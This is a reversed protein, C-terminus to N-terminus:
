QHGTGKDKELIAGSNGNRAPKTIKEAIISNTEAISKTSADLTGENIAKAIAEALGRYKESDKEDQEARIKKAAEQYAKTLSAEDIKTLGPRDTLQETYRATAQDMGIGQGRATVGIKVRNMQANFQETAKAKAQPTWENPGLRNEESQMWDDRKKKVYDKEGLATGGAKGLMSMALKNVRQETATQARFQSEQNINLEERRAAVAKKENETLERGLSKNQDVILRAVLKYSADGGAKMTETQRADLQAVPAGKNEAGWAGQYGPIGGALANGGMMAGTMAPVGYEVVSSQIFQQLHQLSTTMKLAEQTFASGVSGIEEGVANAQEPTLIKGSIQNSMAIMSDTLSQRAGTEKEMADIIADNRLRTTEIPSFLNQFAKGINDGALVLPALLDATEEAAAGLRDQFKTSIGAIEKGSGANRMEAAMDAAAKGMPTALLKRAEDGAPVVGALSAKFVEQAAPGGLEGIRSMAADMAQIEDASKGRMAARYQADAARSKQEQALSERSKGTLKSLQDLNSIYDATVEAQSQDDMRKMQAALASNGMMDGILGASEDATIGMSELSEKFSRGSDHYFRDTSQLTSQLTMMADAGASSMGGFVALSQANAALHKNIQPLTLMTAAQMERVNEMSGGLAMGTKTLERWSGMTESVYASTGSVLSGMLKVAGGTVGLMKGSMGLHKMFGTLKGAAFGLGAGMAAGAGGVDDVGGKMATSMSSMLGKGVTALTASAGAYAAAMDTSATEVERSSSVVTGGARKFDGAMDGVASSAMNAARGVNRLGSSATSASGSVGAFLSDISRKTERLIADDAM